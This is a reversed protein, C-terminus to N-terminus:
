NNDESEIFITNGLVPEPTMSNKLPKKKKWIIKYFYISSYIINLFFLKFTVPRYKDFKYHFYICYGWLFTAPYMLIGIFMNMLEIDEMTFKTPIAVVLMPLILACPFFLLTIVYCMILFKLFRGEPYKSKSKSDV